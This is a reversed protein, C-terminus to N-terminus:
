SSSTSAAETGDGSTADLAGLRRLLEQRAEDTRQHVLERAALVVAEILTEREAAKM